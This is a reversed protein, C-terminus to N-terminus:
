YRIYMHISSQSHKVFSIYQSQIHVNKTNEETRFGFAILFANASTNDKDLKLITWHGTLSFYTNQTSLLITEDLRNKQTVMVYTKTSFYFLDPPRPSWMEVDNQEHM